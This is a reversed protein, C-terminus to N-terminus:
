AVAALGDLANKAPRAIPQSRSPSRDTRNGMNGRQMSDACRTPADLRRSPFRGDCPKQM